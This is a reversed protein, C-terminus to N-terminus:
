KYNVILPACVGQVQDMQAGTRGKFGILVEGPACTDNWPPSTFQAGVVRSDTNDAAWTFQVKNQADLAITLTSCDIGITDVVSKSGENSGQVGTVMSLAAACALVSTGDRSSDTPILAAPSDTPTLAITYASAGRSLTPTACTPQLFTIYGPNNASSLKASIGTVISGPLCLSDHATGGTGGRTVLDHEDGLAISAPCGNNLHGDCDDDLDNFCNEVPAPLQQNMCAGLTGICSQMGGHCAGRNTTEPEGTYCPQTTVDPMCTPTGDAGCVTHGKACAGPNTTTCVDGAKCDGLGGTAGKTSSACGGGSAVAVLLLTSWVIRGAM